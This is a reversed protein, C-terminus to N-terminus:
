KGQGLRNDFMEKEVQRWSQDRSCIRMYTECSLTLSRWIVLQIDLIDIENDLKIVNVESRSKSLDTTLKIRRYKIYNENYAQRRETQLSKLRAEYNATMSQAYVYSQGWYSHLKRLENPSLRSIDNPIKYKRDFYRFVDALNDELSVKKKRRKRKTNLENTM